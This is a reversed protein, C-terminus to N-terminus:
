CSSSKKVTRFQEITLSQVNGDESWSFRGELEVYAPKGPGVSSRYQHLFRAYDGRRNVAAAIGSLCERFLAGEPGVQMMGTLRIIGSFNTAASDRKLRHELDSETRMLLSNADPRTFLRKPGAGQLVLMQEADVWNWRGLSHATMAQDDAPRYEQEFIFSGGAHIWLTTPIGPCGACPFVGSYVGPLSEDSVTETPEDHRDDTCGAIVAIVIFVLLRVPNM